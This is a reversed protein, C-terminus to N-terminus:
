SIFFYRNLVLYYQYVVKIDGIFDMIFVAIEEKMLLLSFQFEFSSM